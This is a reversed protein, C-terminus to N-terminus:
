LTEKTEEDTSAATTSAAAVVTTENDRLDLSHVTPGAWYKHPLRRQQLARGGRWDSYLVKNEVPRIMKATWNDKDAAADDAPFPQTHVTMMGHLNGFVIDTLLRDGVICIKAADELGFHALVEQLGGPKKEQHRIVAIGLSQELKIADGFDADDNTGASNSLIAVKDRGFIELCQQLGPEALRHLTNVYPATLTHDKDFVVAEVGAHERLAQYNIDSVTPVSLQPVLLSPRRVVSALTLLAKTNISQVMKPQHLADHTRTTFTLPIYLATEVEYRSSCYQQMYCIPQPQNHRHAHTQSSTITTENRAFSRARNQFAWLPDKTESEDDKEKGFDRLSRGYYSVAL